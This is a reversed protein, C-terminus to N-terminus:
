FAFKQYTSKKKSGFSWRCSFGIETFRMICPFENGDVLKTACHVTFVYFPPFSFILISNHSRPAPASVLNKGNRSFHCSAARGNIDTVGWSFYLGRLRFIHTHTNRNFYEFVLVRVYDVLGFSHIAKKKMNRKKAEKMRIPNPSQNKGHM